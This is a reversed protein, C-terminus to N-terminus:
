FPGLSESKFRILEWKQEESIPETVRSMLLDVSDNPTLEKLEIIKEQIDQLVGLWIRSTLLFKLGPCKELLLTILERFPKNDYYILEEANDFVVLLKEDPNKKFFSFIMSLM